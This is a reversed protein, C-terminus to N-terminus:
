SLTAYVHLFLTTGRRVRVALDDRSHARHINFRREVPLMGKWLGILDEAMRIPEDRTIEGRKIAAAIVGALQRHVYGPGAEYFRRALAPLRAAETALLRDCAEMDPATLLALLADGFDDLTDRLSTGRASPRLLSQEVRSAEARIVAELLTEKDGFHAYITVKSVQAAAAIEEITTAELGNAFFLTRAAAVIAARKEADKPRGQTRTREPAVFPQLSGERGTIGATLASLKQM